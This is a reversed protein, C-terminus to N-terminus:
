PARREESRERTDFRKANSWTTPRLVGAASGFGGSDDYILAARVEHEALRVPLTVRFPLQARPEVVIASEFGVDRIVVDDWPATATSRVQFKVQPTRGEGIVLVSRATVNTYRGAIVTRGSESIVAEVIEVEPHPRLPM